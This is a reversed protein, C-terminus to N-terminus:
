LSLERILPTDKTKKRANIYRVAYADTPRSVNVAQNHPLLNRGQEDRVIPIRNSIENGDRDVLVLWGERPGSVSSM